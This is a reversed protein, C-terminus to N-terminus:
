DTILGIVTILRILGILGGLGTIDVDLQMKKEARRKFLGEPSVCYFIICCNVCFCVLDNDAM